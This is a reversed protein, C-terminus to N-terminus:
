GLLRKVWLESAPKLWANRLEGLSSVLTDFVPTEGHLSGADVYARAESSRIVKTEGDVVGAFCLRNTLTLGLEREVDQIFRMFTDISCGSAGEVKEDIAMVVFLNDVTGFEASLEKGHARWQAAFREGAEELKATEEDTLFRDAQFIWVRAHDPLTFKELGAPKPITDM